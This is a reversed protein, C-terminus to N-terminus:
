GFDRVMSLLSGLQQTDTEPGELILDFLVTDPVLCASQRSTPNSSGEYAGNGQRIRVRVDICEDRHQHAYSSQQNQLFSLTQKGLPSASDAIRASTQAGSQWDPERDNRTEAIVASAAHKPLADDAFLASPDGAAAM